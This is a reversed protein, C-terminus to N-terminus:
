HFRCSLIAIDDPYPSDERFSNVDLLIQKNMEAVSNNQCKQLVSSLRDTGYEEMQPNEIEILGDTFTVAVSGPSLTLSGLRFSPLTEIMGLGPINAQLLQI